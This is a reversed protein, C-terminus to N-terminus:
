FRHITDPEVASKLNDLLDWYKHLLGNEIIMRFWPTLQVAKEGRRTSAVLEDLEAVSVYKVDNVENKNPSIDVDRQAFLIYDIEHEGWTEDTEAKYHIRTLFNFADLPVQEPPIGLEHHLKRQAARKVGIHDATEMEPEVFLPHSCCTNTWMLPFTIKEAARQQLLLERRSNFLFVSFARHLMGKTRILENLHCNKKSDHGIVNDNDDVLICEEAMLELQTADYQSMSVSAMQRQTVQPRRYNRVSSRGFGLRFVTRCTPLGASIFFM